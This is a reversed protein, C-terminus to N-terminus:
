HSSKIIRKQSNNLYLIYMGDDLASIDVQYNKGTKLNINDSRLVTQGSLNTIEIRANEIKTKSTIYVFSAIPNPFINIEPQENQNEVGAFSHQFTFLSGLSSLGGGTTTGYFCTGDTILSGYPYAGNTTGDFDLLKTYGSGDPMIKFMTGQNNTGGLTTMGYLFTGDSNLSGRPQNGNTTGSFDLLKAYGTGNPMIKFLVGMDSTGGTATLGYLFTGDFFLSGFPQSGNAAGTFDLLKLFGTGNPMIKFVTGSVSTGGGRTMGYLFTGDSILSGWPSVGDTLVSFEHLLVFGSGDPMIKFVTGADASGGARTIGYLFTGDYILSGQPNSGNTAGAFDLLKVYGSGDPMIKFLTGLGNAGGDSTMGYLFTGDSILSGKPYSGNSTGAFDLLNVYGTGDPMIKFINGIVNAGGYGTTGYLYTGDYLLDGYPERGSVGGNCSYITTPQAIILSPIQAYLFVILFSPAILKKM